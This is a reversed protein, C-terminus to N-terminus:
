GEPADDVLIDFAVDEGDVETVTLTLGFSTDADTLTCRVEAGVEAPLPDPCDISDPAEGVEAELQDSVEQELDGTSVADSGCASLGAVIALSFFSLTLRRTIM